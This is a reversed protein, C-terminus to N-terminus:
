WYWGRERAVHDFGAVSVGPLGWGVTANRKCEFVM